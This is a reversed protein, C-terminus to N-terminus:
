IYIKLVEPNVETTIHAHIKFMKVFRQVTYSVYIMGKAIFKTYTNSTM